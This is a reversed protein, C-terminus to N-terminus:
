REEWGVTLLIKGGERVFSKLVAVERITFPRAPAIVLLVKAQLLRDPEFKKLLFPFFGNRM